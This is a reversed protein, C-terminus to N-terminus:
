RPPPAAAAAAIRDAVPKSFPPLEKLRHGAAEYAQFFAVPGRSLTQRLGDIGSTQVIGDAMYAGAPGAVRRVFDPRKVESSLSLRTDLDAESEILREGMRNLDNVSRQMPEKLWTSLPFFSEEIGFIAVPGSEATVRVLPELAGLAAPLRLWAPNGERYAAWAVRFAEGSMLRVLRTVQSAAVGPEVDGLVRALDVVMAPTGDPLTVVLHDALGALGFSVYVTLRASIVRDGPLLSAARRSSERELEARGANVAELMVQWRDLEHRITAFDFVATKNEPNWAAGFDRRFTEDDRSADQIALKIPTLDELLNVDTPDWKPRALSLLIEKAARTDVTVRIDHAAAPAATFPAKGPAAEAPRSPVAAAPASAPSSPGAGGGACGCAAFLAGIVFVAASKM